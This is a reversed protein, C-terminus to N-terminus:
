SKQWTYTPVPIARFLAKLREESQRLGEEARKRETLDQVAGLLRVVRGQAADWIPHTSYRIWRTEGGKTRIRLETVDRQGALIRQVTEPTLHLDDPHILTPWGGKAELEEVTYGTVRIFGETASEIRITGDADVRCAYCYDTSVESLIRHREDSERLKEEAQRRDTTDRGYITLSEPSPCAYIEYWRGSLASPAEFHVLVQEALARRYNIEFTTGRLGPYLEWLSRGLLEELPCGAQKLAQRNVHILRWDRDVVIVTDAIEELFRVLSPLAELLP